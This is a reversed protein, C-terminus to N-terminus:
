KKRARRERRYKAIEQGIQEDTVGQLADSVESLAKTFTASWDPPRGRKKEQYNGLVQQIRVEATAAIESLPLKIPELKVGRLTPEPRIILVRRRRSFRRPWVESLMRAARPAALGYSNVLIELAQMRVVDEFSYRRESGRGRGASMPRLYGADVTNQLRKTSINLVAAVQGAKLTLNNM